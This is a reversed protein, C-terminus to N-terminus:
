NMKVEYLTDLQKILNSVFSQSKFKDVDTKLMNTKNEDFPLLKQELVSYVIIKSDLPIIGKEQASTFLKTFFISKEQSNLSLNQ